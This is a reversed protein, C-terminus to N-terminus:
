PSNTSTAYFREQEDIERSFEEELKQKRPKLQARWQNLEALNEEELLKLKVTEHETLAKTQGKSDKEREENGNYAAALNVMSIRLSERFMLERTKMESRIRKPLSRKEVAQRKVLEEEQINNMRKVHELEKEHRVLMQHRQLFFSDNLQKKLLNNKDYIHREELEWIAAEKGRMLQQKQQLFQRELHALKERHSQNLRTITTDFNKLLSENFKKEREIHNLDLKEKRIRYEDKRKDKSLADIEQKLWKQENKLTEKFQKMEREQEQKIRKTTVRLDIEQQQEAKEVYQKQQRLLADRDNDYTRRLTAMEIEFKKELAEYAFMSKMALDQIQKNEQKQLMKLERLEQKRLIHDEQLRDAEGYIVKSTTTTVMVGDVIFKRTKTLTKKQPNFNSPSAKKHKLEMERKKRLVVAQDHNVNGNSNGHHGNSNCSIGNEKDSISNGSSATTQSGSLESRKREYNRSSAQDIRTLLKGNESSKSTSSVTKNSSGNHKQQYPEDDSVLNLNVKITTKINSGDNSSVSKTTRKLSKEESSSNKIPGEFHKSSRKLEEIVQQKQPVYSNNLVIKEKNKGNRSSVRIDKENPEVTIEEKTTETESRDKDDLDSNSIKISDSSKISIKKGNEITVISINSKDEDSVENTNIITSHNSSITVQCQEPTFTGNEKIMFSSNASTSSDQDEELEARPHSILIVQDNENSEIQQKEETEVIETLIETTAKSTSTLSDDLSSEIVPPKPAPRKQNSSKKTTPQQQSKQEQQPSQINQQNTMTQEDSIELTEAEKEETISDNNDTNVSTQRSVNAKINTDDEDHVEVVEEFVEAKYESIMALIPRKDNASDSNLFPHALLDSANPRLIPDKTLCKAIFDVFLKSWKSPSDLRPPDGKQIKLLVRMPSMQHNPPEKQAFEILTIGLSWIDAKYDYPNDRFTECMVVEPAMWYPTGIFSDRKQLTNKNAASVGFDAIKVDGDLTLLVNGAKLDRHIVKKSHLFELGKCMERCVYKIQPETLPKELDLMISDIAGGECFEILMWLKGEFFYAELLEVINSHRCEALIDIEVVFDELEEEEKCECIKAAAMKGTQINQAKYVKGFAGDGIEGVKTWTDEPNEDFKINHYIKKRKTEIGGQGGGFMKSKIKDFFGSM